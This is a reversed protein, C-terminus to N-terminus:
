DLGEELIMGSIMKPIDEIFKACQSLADLYEEREVLHAPIKYRPVQRGEPIRSIDVPVLQAMERMQTIHSPADSVSRRSPSLPVSM